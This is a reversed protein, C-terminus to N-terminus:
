FTGIESISMKISSRLGNLIYFDNPHRDRVKSSLVFFAWGDDRAGKEILEANSEGIGSFNSLFSYM